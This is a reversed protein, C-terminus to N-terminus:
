EVAVVARNSAAVALGRRHHTFDKAIQYLGVGALVSLLPMIPHRFRSGGGIAWYAQILFYYVIVSSLALTTAQLSWTILLGFGACVLYSLAVLMLAVNLVFLLVTSYSKFLLLFIHAGPAVAILAVGFLIVRIATFPYRLLIQRTQRKMYDLRLLISWNRQEPHRRFYGDWSASVFAKELPDHERIALVETAYQNATYVGNGSFGWYGTETYNRAQWLVIPGGTLVLFLAAHALRVPRRSRDDMLARVALFGAGLIPLLCAVPRVYVSAALCLAAICLDGIQEQHNFYRMLLCLWLMSLATFLTESLLVSSYSVSLPEIAYLLAAVLAATRQEFILLTTVYVLYVTLCSLLIQASITVLELHNVLVGPILFVSYGPTRMVEPTGDLDSFRLDKVLSLAPRLYSRTDMSYFPTLDHHYFYAASPLACRLLLALGVVTFIGTGPRKPTPAQMTVVELMETNLM